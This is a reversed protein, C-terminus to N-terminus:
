AVPATTPTGKNRANQERATQLDLGSNRNPGCGLLLANVIFAVGASVPIGTLITPVDRSYAVPVYAFVSGPSAPPLPGDNFLNYRLVNSAAGAITAIRLIPEFLVTPFHIEHAGGVLQIVIAVPM